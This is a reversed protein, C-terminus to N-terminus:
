GSKAKFVIVEVGNKGWTEKTIKSMKYLCIYANGNNERIDRSNESLEDMSKTNRIIEKM